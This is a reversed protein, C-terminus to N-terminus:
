VQVNKHRADKWDSENRLAFQDPIFAPASDASNYTPSTLVFDAVSFFNM